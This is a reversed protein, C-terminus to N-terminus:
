KETFVTTTQALIGQACFLFATIALMSRTNTLTPM